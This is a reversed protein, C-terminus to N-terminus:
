CCSSCCHMGRKEEEKKMVQDNKRRREEHGSRTSKTDTMGLFWIPSHLTFVHTTDCRTEGLFSDWSVKSAIGSKKQKPFLWLWCPLLSAIRLVDHLPFETWSCRRFPRGKSWLQDSSAREKQALSYCDKQQKMKKVFYYSDFWKM